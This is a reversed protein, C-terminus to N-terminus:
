TYTTEDRGTESLPPELQPGPVLPLLGPAHDESNNAVSDGRCLDGLKVVCM